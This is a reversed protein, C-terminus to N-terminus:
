PGGETRALLTVFSSLKFASLTGGSVDRGKGSFPVVVIAMTLCHCARGLRM